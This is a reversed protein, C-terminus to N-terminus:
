TGVRIIIFLYLLPVNFLLADIRDLFGGHGLLLGGSDKVKAARKLMSEFLDGVTGWLGLVMGLLLAEYWTITGSLLLYIGALSACGGGIMGGLLGEITKKPSVAPYLPRRGVSRGVYFAATDALFTVLLVYTIWLYGDALHYLRAFFSISLSIYVHGLSFCGLLRFLDRIASFNIVFYIYGVWLAALLILFQYEVSELRIGAVILVLGLSGFVFLTNEGPGTVITYFEKLALIGILIIVLDFIVPKKLFIVAVILPLLIASVLWRSTHSSVAM